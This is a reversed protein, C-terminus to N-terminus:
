DEFYEKTGKKVFAKKFLKFSNDKATYIKVYDTRIFNSVSKIGERKRIIRVFMKAHRLSTISDVKLKLPVSAFDKEKVVNQHGYEEDKYQSPDLAFYTYFVGDVVDLKAIPVNNLYFTEYDRKIKSVVGDYSLLENKVESYFQKTGYSSKFLEDVFSMKIADEPNVKVPNKIFKVGETESLIGEEVDEELNPVSKKKERFFENLYDLERSRKLARRIVKKKLRKRFKIIKFKILLWIGVPIGIGVFIILLLTIFVWSMDLHLTAVLPEVYHYNEYDGEFIVKVTHKFPMSTGNGYHGDITHIARLGEPLEGELKIFHNKFNFKTKISNLKLGSIDYVAKAISFELYSNSTIYYNKNTLSVDIRYDGANKIVKDGYDVVLGVIDKDAGECRIEIKKIEGDYVLNEYYYFEIEVPAPNIKIKGEGSNDVMVAKYNSNNTKFVSIIDYVGVDLYIDNKSKSFYVDVKENNVGDYKNYVSYQGLVTGYTFEFSGPTVELVYPNIHLYFNGSIAKYNETAAVSVSITCTQSSTLHANVCNGFDGYTIVGENHNLGVNVRQPLGNYTTFQRQDGSFVSDAKEIEITKEFNVLEYNNNSSIMSATLNYVGANVLTSPSSNKSIDVLLDIKNNSNDRYSAEVSKEIGSYVLNSDVVWEVNVLKPNIVVKGENTQALEVVYNNDAVDDVVSASIVEYQGVNKNSSDDRVFEIVVQKEV